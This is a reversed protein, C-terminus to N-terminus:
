EPVMLAETLRWLVDILAIKILCLCGGKSLSWWLAQKLAGWAVDFSPLKLFCIVTALGQEPDMLTGTYGEPFMLFTLTLRQGLVDNVLCTTSWIRGKAWPVGSGGTSSKLFWWILGRIPQPSLHSYGIKGSSSTFCAFVKLGLSCWLTGPWSRKWTVGEIFIRQMVQKECPNHLADM